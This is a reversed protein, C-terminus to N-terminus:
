GVRAMVDAAKGWDTAAYIETVAPSSQGLVVRAADLDRVKSIATAANHRLRGPGWRPVGAKKCLMAIAQGYSTTSYREWPAKRPNHVRTRSRQSPTMPSKRNSRRQAWLREMARRPSFLFGETEPHLWPRLLNQARPGLAVRRERGHHETKHRIPRYWWVRPDTTDIADSCLLTVEQPRMGTLLQLRIMTAIEPSAHKLVANIHSMPVPLVPESEKAESRGRKLGAVCLLRQHVLPSIIENEGGWKLMRRVRDVAKNIPKRCHGADILKQRYTRLAVPGFDDVSTTGYLELLPKVALRINKQESTPEGHKVYYGVVHQKWYRVFLENFTLDGAHEGGADPPQVATQPHQRSHALYEAILREYERRSAPTDFPGLYFDRGNLTVVAQNSPKHRRYKPLQKTLRPM